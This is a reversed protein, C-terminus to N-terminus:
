DHAHPHDKLHARDIREIEALLLAAARVLNERPSKPKWWSMDWPWFGSITSPAAWHQVVTLAYCVAAGALEGNEHKDDHEPAWHEQSIQRQREAIVDRAAVRAVEDNQM